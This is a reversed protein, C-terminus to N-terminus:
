EGGWLRGWAAFMTTQDFEAEARARNVAGLTRRLAADDLLRGLAAALAHDDLPVVFDRQPPPLMTAIDGVDTSAVPLAAAM